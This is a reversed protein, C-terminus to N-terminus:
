AIFFVIFNENFDNFYGADAKYWNNFFEAKANYHSTVRRDINTVGLAYTDFVVGLIGDTSVEHADATKVNIKSVDTFSWSTGSGQWYAVSESKPLATLENHFTDSQLYVDSASRFDELLVVHQRDSPTFRAKGGMNFISSMTHMRTIYLKITYSAFKIFDLNSMAKDKTLATGGANPGKNYLYLLNIARTGSKSSLTATGYDSYITEATFNNITRLILENIKITMSNEIATYLMSIFANLQTADSFSQKVQKEAFSMPIEYTTKKNFFKASVSPKYFINQDYSEGDELEWTENESAEPLDASIKECISGFEWGDMLVSPVSGTYPRNVFIVKGIHNVLAKVYKDLANANLVAEGVDVINSLDEKVLAATGVAETTATNVFEYIQKVEM